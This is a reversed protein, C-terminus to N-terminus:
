VGGDLGREKRVDARIQEPTRDSIGSEEGEILAAVLADRRHNQDELLRLADRMVESASRYRGSAVQASVFSDFHDGLAVSTNKM